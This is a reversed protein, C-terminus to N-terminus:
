SARMNHLEALTRGIKLITANLGSLKKDGAQDVLDLLKGIQAGHQTKSAKSAEKIIKEYADLKQQTFKRSELIKQKAKRLEEISKELSSIDAELSDILKDLADYNPGLDLTFNKKVFDNGFDDELNSKLLNWKKRADSM